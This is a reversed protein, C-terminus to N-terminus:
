YVSLTTAATWGKGITRMGLVLARNIAHVTGGASKSTNTWVAKDVSANSCNPNTCLFAVELNWGRHSKSYIKMASNCKKCSASANVCEELQETDCILNGECPQFSVNDSDSEESSGSASDTDTDSDSFDCLKRASASLELKSELKDEGDDDSSSCLEALWEEQNYYSGKDSAALKAKVEATM